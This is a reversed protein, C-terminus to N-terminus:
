IALSRVSDSETAATPSPISIQLGPPPSPLWGIHAGPGHVDVLRTAFPALDLAAHVSASPPRLTLTLRGAHASADIRWLSGTANDLERLLPLLVLPAFPLSEVEIGVASVWRPAQGTMLSALRAYSQVVSLERGLTSGEAEVRPQVARLLGTLANLLDEAAAADSDARARIAKLADFLFHPEMRSQQALLLTAQTVQARKARVLAAAQLRQRTSVTARWHAYAVTVLSGPLLLGFALAVDDSSKWGEEGGIIPFLLPGIAWVGVVITAVLGIGYALAGRTGAAVARDAVRMAYVYTFGFEFLNYVWARLVTFDPNWFLAGGMNFVALTGVVVAMSTHRWTWTRIPETFWQKALVPSAQTEALRSM